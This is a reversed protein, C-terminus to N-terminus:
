VAKWTAEPTDVIQYQNGFPDDPDDEEEEFEEVEKGKDAGPRPPMPPPPPPLENQGLNMRAMKTGASDVTDDHSVINWEAESDSDEDIPKNYVEFLQLAAVLEENAHILSGLWQESEVHSIYRLINKRLRKCADVHAIVELNEGPREKERNIRKLANTLNTSAVSSSALSDKLAPKEKELNFPAHRDHKNKSKSSSKKHSKYHDMPPPMPKHPPSTSSSSATQVPSHTSHSATSPSSPPPPSQKPAEVSPQPRTRRQPFQNYLTAIGRLGQTDKYERAWQSFLVKLKARVDPDTTSETAAIRLREL